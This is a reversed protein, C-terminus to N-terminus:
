QNSSNKEPSRHPGHAEQREPNETDGEEDTGVQFEMFEKNKEKQDKLEKVVMDTHNSIQDSMVNMAMVIGDMMTTLIAFDERDMYSHPRHDYHGMELGFADQSQPPTFKPNYPSRPTYTPTDLKDVKIANLQAQAMNDTSIISFQKQESTNIPKSHGQSIKLQKARTSWALKANTQFHIIKIEANSFNFKKLVRNKLM